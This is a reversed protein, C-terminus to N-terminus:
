AIRMSQWYPFGRQGRILAVQKDGLLSVRNTGLLPFVYIHLLIGNFGIIKQTLEPEDYIFDCYYILSFLIPYVLYLLIVDPLIQKTYACILTKLLVMM